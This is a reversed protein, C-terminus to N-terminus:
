VGVNYVLGLGFRVTQKWLINEWFYFSNLLTDAIVHAATIKQAITAPERM